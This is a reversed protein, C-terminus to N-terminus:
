GFVSPVVARILGAAAGSRRLVTQAQDSVGFLAGLAKGAILGSAYGAGMGVALRGVDMPTVFPVSTQKNGIRSAGEAIASAAAAISPPLDPAVNPDNWVMDHVGEVPIMQLPRYGFASTKIKGAAMAQGTLPSQGAHANAIASLLGPVTGALGGYLTMRNPLGPAHGGALRNIAGGAIRGAGAGLMGLVLMSALPGPRNPVGMITGPWIQGVIGAQNILSSYQQGPRMRPAFVDRGDSFRDLPSVYNAADDVLNAVKETADDIATRYGISSNPYERTLLDVVANAVWNDQTDGLKILQDVLDKSM